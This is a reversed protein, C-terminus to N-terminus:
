LESSRLANLDMEELFCENIFKLSRKTSSCLPLCKKFNDISINPFFVVLRGQAVILRQAQNKKFVGQTISM